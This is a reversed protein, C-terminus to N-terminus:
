NLCGSTRFVIPWTTGGSAAAQEFVQCSLGQNGQNGSNGAAGGRPATGHGQGGQGAMGAAGGTGGVFNQNQLLEIQSNHRLLGISAGGNGGNGGNGGAGHGGHGGTATLFNVTLSGGDGGVGGNGGNGANGGAGGNGGVFRVGDMVIGGNTNILAFGVSPGGVEGGVGPGGNEAGGGGSAAINRSPVGPVFITYSGGGGSGHSGVTGNHNRETIFALSQNLSGHTTRSAQQNAPLGRGGPKGELSGSTGGVGGTPGWGSWGVRPDISFGSCGFARGGTHTVPSTGGALCSSWIDNDAFLTATNGAGANQGNGGHTGNLGPGAQGAQVHFHRLRLGECGSCIVGFNPSGFRNAGDPNVNATEVRFGYLHTPNKINTGQMGIVRSGDVPAAVLVRTQPTGTNYGPATFTQGVRWSSFGAPFGGYIDIGERLNITSSSTHADSGQLFVDCRVTVPGTATQITHACSAHTAATTLAENITPSAGAPVYVAVPTGDPRAYRDFGDCSHDIGDFGPQEVTPWVTQSCTLPREVGPTGPQCTLQGTACQGLLGTSCSNGVNPVNDTVGDCNNDLGDCVEAQPFVVQDCYLGWSGGDSQCITRGARCIGHIGERTITCSEGIGLVDPDSANSLGSCSNDKGNCPNPAGPYTADDADDCDLLHAGNADALHELYPIANALAAAAEEATCFFVPGLVRDGFGDGDADQYYLYEPDQMSIECGEFIDGGCLAFGPECGVTCAPFNDADVGCSLYGGKVPGDCVDGCAACHYGGYAPTGIQQHDDRLGDCNYDFPGCFTPFSHYLDNPDYYADPNADDCDYPTQRATAPGCHGTGFGDQDHDICATCTGEAPVCYSQGADAAVCNFGLPCQTDNVCSELCFSQGREAVTQRPARTLLNYCTTGGACASASDCGKCFDSSRSPDHQFPPMCLAAFAQGEVAQNLDVAVVFPDESEVRYPPTGTAIVICSSARANGRDDPWRVDQCVTPDTSCVRSCVGQGAELGFVVQSLTVSSVGQADPRNFPVERICRSGNIPCDLDSTCVTWDAAPPLDPDIIVDTGDGDAEVDNVIDDGTDPETADLDTDLDGIDSSADEGKLVDWGADQVPQQSGSDNGCGYLTLALTLLLLPRAVCPIVPKM